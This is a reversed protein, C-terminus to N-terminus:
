HWKGDRYVLALDGTLRGGTNGTSMIQSSLGFSAAIAPFVSPFAAEILKLPAENLKAKLELMEAQATWNLRFSIPQTEKQPADGGSLAQLVLQGSLTFDREEYPLMLRSGQANALQMVFRENGRWFLFSGDEVFISEIALRLPTRGTESSRVKPRGGPVPELPFASLQDIPSCTGGKLCQIFLWPNNLDIEARLGSFVASRIQVVDSFVTRWNIDLRVRGASVIVQEKKSGTDLLRLTRVVVDGDFRPYLLSWALPVTLVKGLLLKILLRVM